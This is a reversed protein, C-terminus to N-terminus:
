IYFDLTRIGLEKNRQSMNGEHQPQPSNSASPLPADISPADSMLTSNRLM